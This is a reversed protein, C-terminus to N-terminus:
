LMESYNEFAAKMECCCKRLRKNLAQESIGERKALSSAPHRMVYRRKLLLAHEARVSQLSVRLFVTKEVDAGDRLIEDLEEIDVARWRARLMNSAKFRATTYLWSRINGDLMDPLKEVLTLFVEQACDCGDEYNKLLACCFRTIEESYEMYIEGANLM